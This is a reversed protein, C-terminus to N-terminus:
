KSPDIGGTQALVTTEAKCEHAACGLGDPGQHRGDSRGDSRGDGPGGQNVPQTVEPTVEPTIEPTVEPTPTPCRGEKWKGGCEDKLEEKCSDKKMEHCWVESNETAQVTVIVSKLLWFLLVAVVGYIIYKWYVTDNKM